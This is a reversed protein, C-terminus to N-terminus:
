DLRIADNLLTIHLVDGEALRAVAKKGIGIRGSRQQDRPEWRVEGLDLSRLVVKIQCGEAPLLRKSGQPVRVVGDDHDSARIPQTQALPEKVIQAEAWAIAETVLETAQERDLPDDITEGYRFEVAWPGLMRIEHLSSPLTTGLDNLREILHRLDHTWPFDDGSSALVAKLAKETAQQAHFGVIADAISPDEGLKSVADADERAKRLLLQAEEFDPQSL